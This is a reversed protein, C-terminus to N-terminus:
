TYVLPEPEFQNGHPEPYLIRGGIRFCIFANGDCRKYICTETNQFRIWLSGYQYLKPPDPHPISIRIRIGIWFFGFFLNFLLILM